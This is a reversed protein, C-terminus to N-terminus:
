GVTVSNIAVPIIPFCQYTEVDNILHLVQQSEVDNVEGFLTFNGDLHQMEKMTFFFGSGHSKPGWGQTGIQYPKNFSWGPVYEDDFDYGPGLKTGFGTADGVMMLFGHAVHWFLCGDYFPGSTQGKPGPETYAKTGTALGIFNSVAVPTDQDFLDMVIDGLTTHLTAQIM